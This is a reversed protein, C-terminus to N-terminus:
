YKTVINTLSFQISNYPVFNFHVTSGHVSLRVRVYGCLLKLVLIIYKYKSDNQELNVYGPNM